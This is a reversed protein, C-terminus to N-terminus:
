QAETDKVAWLIGHSGYPDSADAFIAAARATMYALWFWRCPMAYARRTAFLGQFWVEAVWRGTMDRGDERLGLATLPDPHRLPELMVGVVNALHGYGGANWHHRRRRGM